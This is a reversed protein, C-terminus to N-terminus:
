VLANSDDSSGYLRVRLERLTGNHVKIGNMVVKNLEDIDLLEAMTSMEAASFKEYGRWLFGDLLLIVTRIHM